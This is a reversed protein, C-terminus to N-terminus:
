SRHKMNCARGEMFAPALRGTRCNTHDITIVIALLEVNNQSSTLLNLENVVCFKRRGVKPCFCRRNNCAMKAVATPVGALKVVATPLLAVGAGLKAVATPVGGFLQDIQPLTERM